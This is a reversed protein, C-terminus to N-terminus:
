FFPLFSIWLYQLIFFTYFHTQLNLMPKAHQVLYIAGPTINAYKNIINLLFLAPKLAFLNSGFDM